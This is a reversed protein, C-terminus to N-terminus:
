AAPAEAVRFLRRIRGLKETELNLEMARPLPYAPDADTPGSRRPWEPTRKMQDDYYSIEISKIKDLLLSRRPQSDQARDLSTWSVRYLSEDEMLYGVRQLNSRQLDMPNPRGHRTFEVLMGSFSGSLLAPQTDGFEDRIERVAAQEIDRQILSLGVQLQALREIHGRTQAETDLVAKLGTYAITSLISFVTIAILLELLTFGWQRANRNVRHMTEPM